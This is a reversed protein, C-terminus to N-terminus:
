PPVVRWGSEHWRLLVGSLRNPARAAVNNALARLAEVAVPTDEGIYFVTDTAPIAVIVVGGQRAALPAWTDILLLRSPHYADGVLRGIQGKGVVKAVDMLPGLEKRLNALGLERVEAESLGLAKADKEGLMKLTRPSDLVPLTVLGEVFPQPLMQIPGPGSTGSQVAQAYQSTRIVLRVAERSPPANRERHVEAAGKVYRDLAVACDASNGACFKFVRDLNAQLEGLGLTLPGKVIVSEESVEKRLQAAVYETFGTEDSPIDEATAATAMAILAMGALSRLVSIPLM